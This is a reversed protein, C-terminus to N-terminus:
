AEYKSVASEIIEMRNPKEKGICCRRNVPNGVHRRTDRFEEVINEDRM